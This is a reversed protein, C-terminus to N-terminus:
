FVVIIKQSAQEVTKRTMKAPKVNRRRQGSETLPPDMFGLTRSESARDKKSVKERKPTRDRADDKRKLGRAHPPAEGPQGGAAGAGVDANPGQVSGIRRRKASSEPGSVFHGSLEADLQGLEGVVDPGDCFAEEPQVHIGGSGSSM